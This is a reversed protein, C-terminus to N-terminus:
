KVSLWLESFNFLKGLVCLQHASTCVWSTFRLARIVVACRLREVRGLQGAKRWLSGANHVCSCAPEKGGLWLPQRRLAGSGSARLGTGEGRCSAGRARREWARM